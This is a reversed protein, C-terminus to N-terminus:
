PVGTIKKCTVSGQGALVGKKWAVRAISASDLLKVPPPPYNQPVAIFTILRQSNRVQYDQRDYSLTDSTLPFSRTVLSDNVYFSIQWSKSAYQVNVQVNFFGSDTLVVPRSFEGPAVNRLESTVLHRSDVPWNHPVKNDHTDQSVAFVAATLILGLLIAEWPFTKM